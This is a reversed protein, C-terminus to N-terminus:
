NYVTQFNRDEASMKMGMVFLVKNETSCVM